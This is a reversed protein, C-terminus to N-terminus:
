CEAFGAHKPFIQNKNSPRFHNEALSIETDKITLIESISQYRVKDKQM